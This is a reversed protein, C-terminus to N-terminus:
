RRSARRLLMMARDEYNEIDLRLVGEQLLYHVLLGLVLAIDLATEGFTIGEGRGISEQFQQRPLSEAASWAAGTGILKKYKNRAVAKAAQESAEQIAEKSVLDTAGHEIAEEVAEKSYNKKILNNRLSKKFLAVGAKKAAQQGAIKAIGGVGFGAVIGLWTTPDTAVSGLGRWFSGADAETRDWIDLSDAWAEKVEDSMEGFADTEADAVTMAMNTLDNGLNAHRKKFWDAINDYGQDGAEFKKGAEHEYIKNAAGIWAKNTNLDDMTLEVDKEAVERVPEGPRGAQYEEESIGFGVGRPKEQQPAEGSVGLTSPSEQIRRQYEEESIGFTAM